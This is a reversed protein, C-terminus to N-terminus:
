QSNRDYSVGTVTVVGVYGRISDSLQPLLSTLCEVASFGLRDAEQGAAREGLM